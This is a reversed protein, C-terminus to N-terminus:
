KKTYINNCINVDDDDDFEQDFSRFRIESWPRNEKRTMVFGFLAFDDNKCLCIEGKECIPKKNVDQVLVKIM